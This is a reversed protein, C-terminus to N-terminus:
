STAPLDFVLTVYGSAGGFTPYGALGQITTELNSPFHITHTVDKGSNALINYFQANQGGFSSTTVANFYINQLASCYRFAYLFAYDGITSLSGFRAESVGCYAFASYLANGGLTTLNPFNVVGTLGSCEYYAYYLGRTGISTINSFENGTLVGSRRSVVGSSVQYSPLESYGGGGGGGTYTGQVGLISVGSKINGAQINADISSDVANVSVSTYGNYPSSPSLSQASTSPTISLTTGKLPTVSGSVGLISVGSKINGASINSDISSTVANVTLVGFGSYGSPVSISQSSTTPTITKAQNTPTVTISTIGNKGSTPTFTNGATSTIFVSRTEGKLETVTGTVGLISVGSKINGSSINADISSTVASVNVPSYGDTGSPATITQASTSPTVNLSEINPEGVLTVPCVKTSGLYLNGAM